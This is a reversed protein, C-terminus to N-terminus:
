TQFQKTLLIRMWLITVLALYTPSTNLWFILSILLIPLPLTLIIRAHPVSFNMLTDLNPFNYLQCQKWQPSSQDEVRAQPDNKSTSADLIVVEKEHILRNDRTQVIVQHEEVNAENSKYNKLNTELDNSVLDNTEHDELSEFTSNGM